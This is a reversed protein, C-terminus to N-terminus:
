KINDMVTIAYHISSLHLVFKRISVLKDINDLAQLLIYHLGILRYQLGM